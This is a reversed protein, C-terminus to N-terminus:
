AYGMPPLVFVLYMLGTLIVPADGCETIISAAFRVCRRRRTGPMFHAPARRAHHRLCLTFSLIREGRRLRSPFPMSLASRRARKVATVSGPMSPLPVQRSCSPKQPVSGAARRAPWVRKLTSTCRLSIISRFHRQFCSWRSRFARRWVLCVAAGVISPRTSRRISKGPQSM